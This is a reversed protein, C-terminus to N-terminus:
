VVFEAIHIFILAESSSIIIRHFLITHPCPSHLTAITSTSPNSSCCHTQKKGLRVLRLAVEAATNAAALVDAAKGTVKGQQLVHSHAVVAIFGDIHCGMDIKIVDGEELVTEDSALPSFHCVTNNVSLCTPFAIGKEVKKKVNKYMNSTQTTIYSDGKECIDVIKANPRCESLVLQLAKNVTEAALKYKTVVEPSSLDLEVEEREEDSM